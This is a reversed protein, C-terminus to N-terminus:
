FGSQRGYAARKLPIDDLLGFPDWANPMQTCLERYSNWGQVLEKLTHDKACNARVSRHTEVRAEEFADFLTKNDPEALKGSFIKTFIAETEDPTFNAVQNDFSSFIVAERGGWDDGREGIGKRVNDIYDSLAANAYCAEIVTVIERAMLKNVLDRFARASMWDGDATAVESSAPRKVTYWAFIEDKVDYGKYLAEIRGGHTNIYLIVRDEPRVKGALDTLAATVGAGTAQENLLVVMQEQPLDFAAQMGSVMLNIDKQCAANLKANQEPDGKVDKWPPCAAAAFLWTKPTDQAALAPTALMFMAALLASMGRSLTTFTM